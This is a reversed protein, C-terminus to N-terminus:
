APTVPVVLGGQVIEDFLELFKTMLEADELIAPEIKQVLAELPFSAELHRLVVQLTGDIEFMDDTDLNLVILNGAPSPRCMVSSSLAWCVKLHSENM